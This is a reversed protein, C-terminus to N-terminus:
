DPIAAEDFDEHRRCLPLFDCTACLRKPVPILNEYDRELIEIGLRLLDERFLALEENNLAATAKTGTRLALITARVPRDPHAARVLLQYCGMALDTRVDEETVETRGSKYDIIELSGDPHRDVRDVRGLLVFPGMDLRFPKEVYLVEAEPPASAFAEVYTEVIQKGTGLAEEMEQASRYGAEIWSEELAGLAQEKTTVGADRSDHFRELVKHLSAGFSFYSKARLYWRGRPDLYTWRYRVPCALYTSIRTPSLVPKQM